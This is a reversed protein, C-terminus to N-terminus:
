LYWRLSPWIWDALVPYPTESSSSELFFRLGDLFISRHWPWFASFFIPSFVYKYSSQIHQLRLLLKFILTESLCCSEQYSHRYKLPLMQYAYHMIVRPGVMTGCLMCRSQLTALNASNWIARPTLVKPGSKHGWGQCQYEVAARVMM